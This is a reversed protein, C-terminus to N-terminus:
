AGESVAPVSTLTALVKILSCAARGAPTLAPNPSLTVLRKNVLSRWTRSTFAPLEAPCEELSLLADRERETMWFFLNKM